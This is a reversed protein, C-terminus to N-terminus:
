KGISGVLSLLVSQQLLPRGLGGAVANARQRAALADYLEAFRARDSEVGGDLCIRRWGWRAVIEAVLPDDFHPEGMYGVRRIEGLVDCWADVGCRVPGRDLDVVTARIDAVTPLYRSTAILREIARSAVDADIDALMREYVRSTAESVQSHPYAAILMAVLKAAESQKM